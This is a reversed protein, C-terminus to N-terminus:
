PLVGPLGFLALAVSKGKLPHEGLPVWPLARVTASLDDQVAQSILLPSGLQKTLGELRSATNVVDGIFTFELREPAGVNGAIVDGRHIGVGIQLPAGLEGALGSCAKLMAVGALVARSAADTPNDLGFVALLGDGIFKDILGGHERVLRVMVSFYANLLLVVEEPPRSESLTTFSRIDSFLIVLNRRTGGLSVGGPGAALLRRAIEPSVVKGLVSEVRQKERLSDIMQNTRDAILAFENKGVVPVYSDLQGLAVQHLVQTQHRFFIQLNKAYSLILNVSLAIMVAVVFSIEVLVSRQAAPLEPPTVTILWALDKNIVLFFIAGLLALVVVAVTAFGRTLSRLQFHAPLRTGTRAADAVLVREAQLALDLAYFIGLMTCGLLLKMGSGLPFDRALHNYATLGVGVAVFSFFDAHLQRRIRDEPPAPEVRRRLLLPRAALMLGLATLITLLLKWRPLGDLLPCVESGYITLLIASVVAYIFARRM